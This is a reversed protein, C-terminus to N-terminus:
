GSGVRRLQARLADNEALLDLVLATGAPGLGLDRGLRLATRAAQLAPGSFRWDQPGQGAPELVGEGVLELLQAAEAGCARCLDELTFEIQEEVILTEVALSLTQSV